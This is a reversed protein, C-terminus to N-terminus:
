ETAPTSMDKQPLTSTARFDDYKKRTTARDEDSAFGVTSYNLQRTNTYSIRDFGYDRPNEGAILLAGAIAVDRLQTQHLKQGVRQQVGCFSKDNIGVELDPLNAPTGFRTIAVLAIQAVHCPTNKARVLEIARPLCQKIDYQMALNFAMQADWSQGHKMWVAFLQRLISSRPTRRYQSTGNPNRKYMENRFANYNCVSYITKVSTDDVEVDSLGGSFLLAAVTGLQISDRKYTRFIQQLERCRNTIQSSIITKPRDLSRMLEPEARCMLVFLRRATSTTGSLEKFIHWGPLQAAQEGSQMFAELQLQYLNNEVADLVRQARFRLERSGNSMATELEPVVAPGLQILTAMARQRTAFQRSSLADVLKTIPEQSFLHDTSFVFSIVTMAMITFLRPINTAKSYM